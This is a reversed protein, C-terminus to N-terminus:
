SFQGTAGPSKQQQKANAEAWIEANTKRRGTRIYSRLDSEFFYLRGGVKNGPLEGKHFKTYVTAPALDLFDATEPVTFQRDVPESKKTDLSHIYSTLKDIKDELRIVTEPLSDFSIAKVVM